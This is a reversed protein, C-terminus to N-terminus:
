NLSQSYYVYNKYNVNVHEFYGIDQGIKRLKGKYRGTAKGHLSFIHNIVKRRKFLPYAFSLHELNQFRIIQM